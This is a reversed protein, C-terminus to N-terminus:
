RCTACDALHAELAAHEAGELVGLARLPLIDRADDHTM